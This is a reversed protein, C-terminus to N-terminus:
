ASADSVVIKQFAAGATGEQAATFAVKITAAGVTVTDNLGTPFSAATTTNRLITLTASASAGGGTATATATASLAYGLSPHPTNNTYFVMGLTGKALSFTAGGDATITPASFNAAGVLLKTINGDVIKTFSFDGSLSFSSGVHLTLSGGFSKVNSGTTLLAPLPTGPILQDTVPLGTTNIAVIASGSLSVEGQPLITISPASAQLAYTSGTAKSDRYIALGLSAGAIQVGSRGDATGIFANVGSAAVLIKTTTGKGDADPTTTKSFDFTGSLSVFGVVNISATVEIEALTTNSGNTSILDLLPTLDM